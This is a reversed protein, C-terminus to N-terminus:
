AYAPYTAEIAEPSPTLPFEIFYNVAILAFAVVVLRLLINEFFKDQKKIYYIASLAVFIVSFFISFTFMLKGGEWHQVKFLLTNLLISLIIGVAISFIIRKPTTNQYASKKFINKLEINNFLLFSFLFYFNAMILLFITSLFGGGEFLSLKMALAVLILVAMILEFLKM